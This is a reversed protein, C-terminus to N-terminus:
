FVRVALVSNKIDYVKDPFESQWSLTESTTLAARVARAARVWGGTLFIM